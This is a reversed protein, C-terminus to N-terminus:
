KIDMARTVFTLSITSATNGDNANIAPTSFGTPVCGSYVFSAGVAQNNSRNVPTVTITYPPKTDNWSNMAKILAADNALDYPKRLTLTMPEVNGVITVPYESRGDAVTM